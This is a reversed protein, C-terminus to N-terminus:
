DGRALYTPASRVIEEPEDEFRTTEAHIWGLVGQGTAAAVRNVFDVWCRTQMPEGAGRFGLYRSRSAARARSRIHFVVDGRRNRYAGFTIRGAEPHGRLTALTFSQADEHVVQVAARGAGVIRLDLRDGPELRPGARARQFVVLEEPAFREFHREILAMVQSPRLRCGRLVAWYDRQLLPGFGGRAVALESAQVADM